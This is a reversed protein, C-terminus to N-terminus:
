FMTNGCKNCYKNSSKNRKGCRTCYRGNRSNNYEVADRYLEQRLAYNITYNVRAEIFCLVVLVFIISLYVLINTWQFGSLLFLLMTGSRYAFFTGVTGIIGVFGSLFTNHCLLIFLPIGISLVIFLIQPVTYLNGSHTTVAQILSRHSWPIFLSVIALIAVVIRSIGLIGKIIIPLDDVETETRM